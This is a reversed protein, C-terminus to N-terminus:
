IPSDNISKVLNLKSPKSSVSYMVDAGHKAVPSKVRNKGPTVSEKKVYKSMKRVEKIEQIM